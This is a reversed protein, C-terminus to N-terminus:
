VGESRRKAATKPPRGPGEVGAGCGGRGISATCLERAGEARAVTNAQASPEPTGAQTENRGTRPRRVRQRAAARQTRDNQTASRVFLMGALLGSPNELWSRVQMGRHPLAAVAAADLRRIRDRATSGA